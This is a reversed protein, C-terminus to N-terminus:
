NRFLDRLTRRPRPQPAPHPDSDLEGWEGSPESRMSARAAIFATVGFTLVALVGGWGWRGAVYALAVSVIWWVSVPVHLLFWLWDPVFGILWQQADALCSDPNIVCGLM